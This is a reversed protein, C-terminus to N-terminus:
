VYRARHIAILIWIVACLNGIAAPWNGSLISLMACVTVAALAVVDTIIGM